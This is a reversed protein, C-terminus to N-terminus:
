KQEFFQISVGNPDKICFFRSTPTEVLPGYTSLNLSELKEYMKEISDVAFGISLDDTFSVDNKKEDALLEIFTEDETGNGMFAIEVGPGAPFRRTVKLDLVKSYFSIAEELNKVHITTWLYKM